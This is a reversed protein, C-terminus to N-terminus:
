KKFFSGKLEVYNGGPNLIGNGRCKEDASIEHNGAIVVKHEFELTGLWDNFEEIQSPTGGKTFDGAHVLIDGAPIKSPIQHHHSHTDSICVFRIQFAATPVM